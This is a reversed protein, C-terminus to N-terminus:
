SASGDEEDLWRETEGWGAARSIRRPVLALQAVSERPEYTKDICENWFDIHVKDLDHPSTEVDAGTERQITFWFLFHEDGEVERFIVEVQMEERELTELAEEYRRKLADIWADVRREKGPIVRYKSLEVKM